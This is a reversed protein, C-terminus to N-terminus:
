CTLYKIDEQTFGKQLALNIIMSIVKASREILLDIDRPTVMLPENKASPSCSSMENIITDSDVVTPVGIAVVPIGLTKESLEKRRNQVGAGPTIGSNSIQVTTGLRTVSAAALADIAIIAKPKIENIISLIIEATEVGTQGLVGTAIAAVSRFGELPKLAIETMHRTALILDVARPGIADPTIHINGLGVVLVTGNEPLLGRLYEALLATEDESISINGSFEPVTATIYTGIPKSMKLSANDDDIKLVEITINEQTKKEYSVGKPLDGLNLNSNEIALDTRLAM